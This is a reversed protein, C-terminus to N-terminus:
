LRNRSYGQALGPATAISTATHLQKKEQTSEVCPNQQRTAIKWGDDIFQWDDAGKDFDTAFDVQELVTQPAESQAMIRSQSVIAIQITLPIVFVFNITALRM